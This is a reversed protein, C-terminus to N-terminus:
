ASTNATWHAYLTHDRERVQETETVKRGGNPSTYWGAFQYGRRAPVPMSGYVAGIGLEQTSVAPTGRNADYTVKYKEDTVTIQCEATKGNDTEATIVATGLEKGTVTGEEDVSVADPNSSRWTIQSVAGAPVLSVGIRRTQEAKVKVNSESLLIQDPAIKFPLDISYKVGRATDPWQNLMYEVSSGYRRSGYVYGEATDPVHVSQDNEGNLSMKRIEAATNYYLEGDYLFLGSFSGAYPQGTGWILWVGLEKLRSEKGDPALSCISGTGTDKIYYQYGDNFIIQSM